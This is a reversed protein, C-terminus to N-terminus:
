TEPLDSVCKSIQDQVNLKGREQLLLICAGTFQKTLSAIRFKTTVSNPIKWEADALGYGKEFLIKGDIGVLVSGSFSGETAKALLYTDAQKLANGTSVDQCHADPAVWSSRLCNLLHSCQIVM